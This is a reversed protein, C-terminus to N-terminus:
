RELCRAFPFLEPSIEHAGGPDRLVQVRPSTLQPARFQRADAQMVSGYASTALGFRRGRDCVYGCLKVDSAFDGCRRM